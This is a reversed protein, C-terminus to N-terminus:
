PPTPMRQSWKMHQAMRRRRKNSSRFGLQKVHKHTHSVRTRIVNLTHWIHHLTQLKIINCILFTLSNSSVMRMNAQSSAELKQATWDHTRRGIPFVGWHWFSRVFIATHLFQQLVEEGDPRHRAARVCELRCEFRICERVIYYVCAFVCVWMCVCWM